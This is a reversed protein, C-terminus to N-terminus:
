KQLNKTLVESKIGNLAFLEHIDALKHPAVVLEANRHLIAPKLFQLSDSSGELMELLQRQQENDIRASIVRYNDFRAKEAFTSWLVGGVLVLLVVRINM